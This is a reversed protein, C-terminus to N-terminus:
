SVPWASSVNPIVQSLNPFTSEPVVRTRFRMLRSEQHIIPLCVRIENVHTGGRGIIISADQTVILCRMSIQQPQDSKVSSPAPPNPMSSASSPGDASIFDARSCVTRFFGFLMVWGENRDEDMKATGKDKVEIAGAEGKTGNGNASTDASGTSPEAKEGNGKNDDNHDEKARKSSSKATEPSFPSAARKTATQPPSSSM